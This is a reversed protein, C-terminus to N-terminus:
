LGTQNCLRWAHNLLSFLEPAALRNADLVYVHSTIAQLWDERAEKDRDVALAIVIPPHPLASIASLIRKWDAASCFVAPFHDHVLREVADAVSSEGELKWHSRAFLNQLSAQVSPGIVLAQARTRVDTLQRSPAAVASMDKMLDGSLDGLTL